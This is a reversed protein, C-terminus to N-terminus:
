TSGGSAAKAAAAKKSLEDINDIDGDLANLLGGLEGDGATAPEPLDKPDLSMVHDEISDLLRSGWSAVDNSIKGTERLYKLNAWTMPCMVPATIPSGYGQNELTELKERTSDAAADHTSFTECKWRTWTASGKARRRVAVVTECVAIECSRGQKAHNMRFLTLTQARNAMARKAPEDWLEKPLDELTIM